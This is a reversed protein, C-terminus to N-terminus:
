QSLDIEFYCVDADVYHSPLGTSDKIKFMGLFEFGCSTYHKILSQNDGCTDLRIFDLANTHAYEKAWIVIKAVFNQGRFIPNTAIRHIYIAADKNKEQWIEPDSHTIAWICATKGEIILKYQRGEKIELEVMKRDFTPWLNDPFKIKQHETALDYLRFIENIDDVTSKTILSRM